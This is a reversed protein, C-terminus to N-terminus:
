KSGDRRRADRAQARRKKSLRAGEVPAGVDATAPGDVAVEIPDAKHGRLMFPITGIFIACVALFIVLERLFIDDM